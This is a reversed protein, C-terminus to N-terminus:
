TQRLVGRQEEEWKAGQMSVSSELFILPSGALECFLLISRSNFDIYLRLVTKEYSANSDVRLPHQTKASLLHKKGNWKRSVKAAHPPLRQSKCHSASAKCKRWARGVLCHVQQLRGAPEETGVGKQAEGRARAAGGGEKDM